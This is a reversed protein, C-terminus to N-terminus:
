KWIFLLFIAVLAIILPTSLTSGGININSGGIVAGNQGALKTNNTLAAIKWLGAQLARPDGAQNQGSSTVQTAPNTSGLTALRTRMPYDTQLPSCWNGINQLAIAGQQTVTTPKVPTGWSMRKKM